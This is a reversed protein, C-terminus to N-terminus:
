LLEWVDRMMQNVDEKSWVVFVMQDLSRMVGITHRQLPSIKGGKTKVEVFLTLGGPLMVIRDPVGRQGTWKWCRGGAAEVVRVLHREIDRERM